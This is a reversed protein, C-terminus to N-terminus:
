GIWRLVPVPWLGATLILALAAHLSPFTVIGAAGSAMLLRFSGDRLGYFIPLHLDRTAPVIDPYAAAHLKHFGWVGEAPVAAAVAITVLTALVFAIIVLRLNALRDTWALALVVVVTQPMLSLYVIRFVPHISAHADMWALLGPWDFGLVRDAAEFWHDHLPLAFSAGIYSLPAGVAAFAILQATTGLAGAIRPDPRRTHYFWQGCLFIAATVGPALFSKWVLHFSGLMTSALVLMAVAAIVSWIIGDLRRLGAAQWTM